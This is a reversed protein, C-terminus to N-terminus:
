ESEEQRGPAMIWADISAYWGEHDVDCLPEPAGLEDLWQHCLAHLILVAQGNVIESDTGWDAIHPCNWKLFVTLNTHLRQWFAVRRRTREEATIINEM